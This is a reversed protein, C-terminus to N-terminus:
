NSIFRHAESPRTYKITEFDALDNNDDDVRVSPTASSIVYKQQSSKLGTRRPSPGQDDSLDGVYNDLDVFHKDDTEVWEKNNVNM